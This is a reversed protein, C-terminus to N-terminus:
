DHLIILQDRIVTNNNIDLATIIYHGSAMGSLDIQENTNVLESLMLKGTSTFLQLALLQDKESSLTIQDRAPNPFVEISLAEIEEEINVTGTSLTITHTHTGCENSVTLTVEQDQSPGFTKSVSMATSSTGDSFEWLYNDATAINFFRYTFDGTLSWQIDARPPVCTFCDDFAMQVSDSVLLLKELSSQDQSESRAHIYANTICQEQTPAFTFPGSSLLMRRDGPNEDYWTQDPDEYTDGANMWKTYVETSGPFFYPQNSLNVSRLYDYYDVANTPNGFTGTGNTLATFGSLMIDDPFPQDNTLGELLRIGLAPPLEGYGPSSSSAEDMPDGNYTYGLNRNIDCGVFDDSATGLDTDAWTGIYAPSITTSGRHVFKKQSFVVDNLYNTSSYGYVVNHIELGIPIGNSATHPGGKDNTIWFTAQHGGLANCNSCEAAGLMSIFLPCDGDEPFYIGDQNYDLFPALYYDQGLTVNGHAPYDFLNSPIVYGEFDMNSDCNPDNLCDFYAMHNLSEHEYVTIIQDYAACIEPSVEAYGDTTLPGNYYDTGNTGYTGAALMLQQDPTIGGIWFGSSYMSHVGSGAPVEFGAASNAMDTFQVEGSNLTISLNNVSFEQTASPPACSQSFSYSVALLALLLYFYKM